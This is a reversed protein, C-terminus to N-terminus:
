LDQYIAQLQGVMRRVPFADELRRRAARGMSAATEEESALRTIAAALAGANAPPVLVGTVGDEVVEGNGGTATAVAPKGFAMAELIAVPLGESLSPLVVLRSLSLLAHKVDDAVAGAFVVHGNLGLRDALAILAPRQPGDGVLVCSLNPVLPVARALGELLYRHGKLPILSGIAVLLIPDRAPGLLRRARQMAEASVTLEESPVTHPVVTIKDARVKLGRRSVLDAKVAESVAIVRDAWRYILRYGRSLFQKRLRHVGREETVLFNHGVIHAVVRARRSLRAALIGAVDSSYLCTHVVDIRWRRICRALQLIAFPHWLRRRFTVVDVAGSAYRAVMPGEAPCAVYCAVGRASLARLLLHVVSEAGGFAASDIVFLVRRASPEM